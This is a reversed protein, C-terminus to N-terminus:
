EEEKTIKNSFEEKTGDPYIVTMTPSIGSHKIKDPVKGIVRNLLQDFQATSGTEETRLLISAVIRRMQTSEPNTLIEACEKNTAYLLTSVLQEVEEVSLKKLDRIEKPVTPYGAPNGSVGKKFRTAPSPNKNGRAM